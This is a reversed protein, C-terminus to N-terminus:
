SVHIYISSSAMVYCHRATSIEVLYPVLVTFSRPWHVLCLQFFHHCECHQHVGHFARYNQARISHKRRKFSELKCKLKQQGQAVGEDFTCLVMDVAGCDRIDDELAYRLNNCGCIEAEKMQLCEDVCLAYTYEPNHLLVHRSNEEICETKGSKDKYEFLELGIDHYGPGVSAKIKHEHRSLHNGPRLFYIDVRAENNIQPGAANEDLIMSIELQQWPGQVLPSPPSYVHCYPGSTKQM